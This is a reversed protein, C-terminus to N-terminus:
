KKLISTQLMPVASSDIGLTTSLIKIIGWVSTMVFLGILGWLIFKKGEEKKTSDAAAVFRFVGWLFFLFALVFIMPIIVVVIVCKIWILIDLLSLFTISSCQSLQASSAQPQGAGQTPDGGTPSGNLADLQQTVSGLTGFPNNQQCQEWMPDGIPVGNCDGSGTSGSTTTQSQSTQTTNQQDFQQNVETTSSQTTGGTPSVTVQTTNTPTNTSGTSAPENTTTTDGTTPQNDTGITKASTITTSTIILLIGFIALIKKM